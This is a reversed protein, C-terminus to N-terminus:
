SVAENKTYTELLHPTAERDSGCRVHITVEAATSVVLNGVTLGEEGSPRKLLDHPEIGIFV